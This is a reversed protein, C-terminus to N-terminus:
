VIDSDIPFDLTSTLKENKTIKEKRVRKELRKGGLSLCLDRLDSTLKLRVTVAHPSMDTKM